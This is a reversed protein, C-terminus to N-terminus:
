RGNLTFAAWYLPAATDPDSLLDLKAKRLAEGYSHGNRFYDYFGIMLHATPQDSVRWMSVVLNSAGAYLFARTFGILGEGRRITGVGTECASLVVLDANLELNYIDSVFAIGHEDESGEQFVLGSLAPNSANVFGHTAFHIFGFEELGGNMLRSRTARRNTLVETKEPFFFERLTSREKFRESIERTEYGTLALASLNGVSRYVEANEFQDANLGEEQFPAMAFLHRPEPHRQRLMREFVTASPAYQVQYDRILYPLNVYADDEPRDTLLLDFPLHFLAQDPVIILSENQLRSEIPAMLQSYLDTAYELYRDKEADQVVTILTEVSDSVHDGNGLNEIHVSEHDILLAYLNEQGFVYILMSEDSDLLEKAAELGIVNREYRLNHYDPYRSELRERFQELDRQAYFLSDRLLEMRSSDAELGRDQELNLEQFQRTVERNLEREEELVEPPVGGFNRAEVEQLLENAIRSRSKETYELFMEEWLRDGSREYMKYIADLLHTYITYNEDLLNLKSAESQFQSQLMDITRSAIEYLYIQELLYDEGGNQRYLARNVENKKNIITILWLPDSVEQLNEIRMGPEYDRGLLGSLVRDYYYNAGDPDEAEALAEGRIVDTELVQTHTEGLRSIGIERARDLLGFAEETRELYALLRSYHLLPDILAPHNNGYVEERVSVALRYNREAEDYEENERHISALNNYGIATERHDPGLTEEKIRQARELYRTAEDLDGLHYYSLGANNYAGAVRGHNEGYHSRFINGSRVFYDAATGVDGTGYYVTGLSNYVLAIEPHDSGYLERAATLAQQYHEMARDLEGLRRHSVGINNHVMSLIRLVEDGEEKGEVEDISITYAEIAQHYDGQLDYIHGRALYARAKPIGGLKNEEVYGVAKEAWEDAKDIDSATEFLYTMQAFIQVYLPHGEDLKEQALSYAENLLDEAREFEREYRHYVGRLMYAEVCEDELDNRSCLDEGISEFIAAADGEKGDYFLETARDFEELIESSTQAWLASHTFPLLLFILAAVTLCLLVKRQRGPASLHNLM